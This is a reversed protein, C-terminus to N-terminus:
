LYPRPQHQKTGAAAATPFSCLRAAFCSKRGAALWPSPPDVEGCTHLSWRSRGPTERHCSCEPLTPTLQSRHSTAGDLSRGLSVNVENKVRKCSMKTSTYKDTWQSIETPGQLSHVFVEQHQEGGVEQDEGQIVRFLVENVLYMNHMKSYLPLHQSNDLLYCISYM